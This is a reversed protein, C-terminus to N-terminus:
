KVYVGGVPTVTVRTTSGSATFTTIGTGSAQGTPSFTVTDNTFNDALTVGNSYDSLKRTLILTAGKLISYRNNTGDFTAKYDVKQAVAKMRALQLDTVLQRAVAQMQYNQYMAGLYPAALSALIGVVCVCVLLEVLSFGPSRSSLGNRNCASSSYFDTTLM